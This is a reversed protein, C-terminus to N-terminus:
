VPTKGVGKFIKEIFSELRRKSSSNGRTVGERRSDEIKLKKRKEGTPNSKRTIQLYGGTGKTESLIKESSIGRGRLAFKLLTREKALAKEGREPPKYHL